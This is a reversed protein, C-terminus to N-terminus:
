RVSGRVFRVFMEHIKMPNDINYMIQSCNQVRKGKRSMCCERRAM